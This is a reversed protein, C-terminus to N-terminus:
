SNISEVELDEGGFKPNNIRRLASSVALVILSIEDGKGNLFVKTLERGNPYLNNIFFWFRFVSPFTLRLFMMSNHLIKFWAAVDKDSESIEFVVWIKDEEMGEVEFITDNLLVVVGRDPLSILCGGRLKDEL